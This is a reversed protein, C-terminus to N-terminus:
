GERKIIKRVQRFKYAIEPWRIAAAFRVQAPVQFGTRRILGQLEVDYAGRGRLTNLLFHNRHRRYIDLDFILSFEELRGLVELTLMTRLCKGCRSCNGRHKSMVCVDLSRRTEELDLIRATKEVRDYQSGVSTMDVKETSMLPLLVLDAHAILIDSAVRVDTYSYASAYLFRGVRAQLLLPVTANRVTHTKEFILDLAGDYFTALNSHVPILELGMRDSIKRVGDYRQLFDNENTAFHSGVNNYLLHTLRFAESSAQYWHDALVAMSDVGSSFGTVVADGIGSLDSEVRLAVVNVFSLRPNLQQLVRQLPGKINHYLRPSVVGAVELDEGCKMAPILLALVAADSRDSLMAECHRPVKYWLIKPLGSSTVDVEYSLWDRDEVIRPLSLKITM